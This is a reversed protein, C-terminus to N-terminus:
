LVKIILQKRKKAACASLIIIYISLSLILGLINKKM